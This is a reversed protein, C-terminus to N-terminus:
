RPAVEHHKRDEAIHPLHQREGSFRPVVESVVNTMAWLIRSAIATSNFPPMRPPTPLSVSTLVLAYVCPSRRSGLTCRYGAGSRTKGTLAATGM